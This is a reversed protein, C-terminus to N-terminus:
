TKDQYNIGNKATIYKRLALDFEPIRENKVSITINNNTTEDVALFDIDEQTFTDGSMRGEEVTKVEYATGENNLGTTIQIAVEDTIEYYGEPAQTEEILYIFTQNEETIQINDLVEGSIIGDITTYEIEEGVQM